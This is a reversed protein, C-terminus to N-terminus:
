SGSPSLHWLCNSRVEIDKEVAEERFAQMQKFPRAIKSHQEAQKAEDIQRKYPFGLDIVRKCLQANQSELDRSEIKM